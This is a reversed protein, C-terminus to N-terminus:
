QIGGFSGSRTGREAYVERQEKIGIRFYYEAEGGVTFVRSFTAVWCHLDRSIGFRQTLAQRHSLDLSTSYDLGWGPSFQYQLVANMTQSSSWRDSTLRGGAYSYALAASWDDRFGPPAPTGQDVPLAPPVGRIRASSLNLSVNYNFNRIPRPAYVDMTWGANGNLVGPPQLLLSWGLNSLPHKLRQERWLFNYSGRVGLLLLNDLVTIKDGQRLKAQLRQDLGFNLFSQKSGGVAFGGFDNFRDRGAPPSFSYSASPTVV